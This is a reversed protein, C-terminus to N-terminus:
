AYGRVKWYAIAVSAIGILIVTASITYWLKRRGMFDINTKGFFRM